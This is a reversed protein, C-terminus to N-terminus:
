FQARNHRRLVVGRSTLACFGAGRGLDLLLDVGEILVAVAGSIVLFVDRARTWNVGILHEACFKIERAGGEGQRGDRSFCIADKCGGVDAARELEEAGDLGRRFRCRERGGEIEGRM